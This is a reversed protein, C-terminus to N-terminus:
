THSAIKHNEYLSSSHYVKNYILNNLNLNRLFHGFALFLNHSNEM